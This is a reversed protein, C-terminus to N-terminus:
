IDKKFWEYFDTQYADDDIKKYKNVFYKGEPISKRGFKLNNTTNVGSGDHMDHM